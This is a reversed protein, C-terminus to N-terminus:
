AHDLVDLLAAFGDADHDPLVQYKRKMVDPANNVVFSQATWDLLDIDNYDNGIGVTSERTLGLYNVLEEAAHGKSIGHPFVEIWISEHDLPSTTRIVQLEPLRQKVEAVLEAGSSPVVALLQSCKEISTVNHVPQSFEQYIRIRRNFDTNNQKSTFYYFKHNEPVPYQVMFDLKLETMVNCAKQTLDQSLHHERIIKKSKWDMIGLGTSFILHDIPFDDAIVKRFSYISRGTAIVLKISNERFLKIAKLNISSIKHERDLLTRDLDAFIIGLKMDNKM